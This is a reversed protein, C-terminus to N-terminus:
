LILNQAIVTNARTGGRRLCIWPKKAMIDWRVISRSVFLCDSEVRKILIATMLWSSEMASAIKCSGNMRRKRANDLASTKAVRPNEIHKAGADMYESKSSSTRNLQSEVSIGKPDGLLM